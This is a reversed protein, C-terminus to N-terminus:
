RSLNCISYILIGAEQEWHQEIVIDPFIQFRVYLLVIHTTLSRGTLQMKRYKLFSIFRM